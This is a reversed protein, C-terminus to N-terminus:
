ESTPPLPLPEGYETCRPPRSAAPGPGRTPTASRPTQNWARGCGEWADGLRCGAAALVRSDGATRASASRRRGREPEAVSWRWRAGRGVPPEAGGVWAGRARPPLPRRPAGLLTARGVHSGIGRSRHAYSPWQRGRAVACDPQGVHVAGGAPRQSASAVTTPAPNTSASATTPQPPARGLEEGGTGWSGPTMWTWPPPILGPVPCQVGRGVGAQEDDPITASGPHGIAALVGHAEGHEAGVVEDATAM